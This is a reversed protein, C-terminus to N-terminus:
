SVSRSLIARGRFITDNKNVSHNRYNIYWILYTERIKLLSRIVNTVNFWFTNILKTLFIIALNIINSLLVDYSIYLLQLGLESRDWGVEKRRRKRRRFWFFAGDPIKPSLRRCQGALSPSSCSSIFGSFTTFPVVLLFLAALWKLPLFNYYTPAPFFRFPIKSKLIESSTVFESREGRPPGM